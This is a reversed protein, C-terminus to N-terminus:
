KKKPTPQYKNLGLRDGPNKRKAKADTGLFNGQGSDDFYNALSGYSEGKKVMDRSTDYQAQEGRKTERAIQMDRRGGAGSTRGPNPSVMDQAQYAVDKIGQWVTNLVKKGTSTKKKPESDGPKGPGPMGGPYSMLDQGYYTHQLKKALGSKSAGGSFLKAPGQSKKM